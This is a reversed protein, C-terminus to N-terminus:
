HLESRKVFPVSDSAMLDICCHAAKAWVEIRGLTASELYHKILGEFLLKAAEDHRAIKELARPRLRETRCSDVVQEATRRITEKRQELTMGGMMM